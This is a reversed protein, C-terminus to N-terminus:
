ALMLFAFMGPKVTVLLCSIIYSEAYVGYSTAMVDTM